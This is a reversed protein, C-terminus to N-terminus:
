LIYKYRNILTSMHFQKIICFGNRQHHLGDYSSLSNLYFSPSWNLSSVAIKNNYWIKRFSSAISIRKILQSQISRSCWLFLTELCLALFMVKLMGTSERFNTNERSTEHYALLFLINSSCTRRNPKGVCSYVWTFQIHLIEPFPIVRTKKTKKKLDCRLYCYVSKKTYLM